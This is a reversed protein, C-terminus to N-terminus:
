LRFRKRQLNDNTQEASQLDELEATMANVKSLLVQLKKGMEGGQTIAQSVFGAAADLDSMNLTFSGISAEDDGSLLMLLYDCGTRELQSTVDTMLTNLQEPNM